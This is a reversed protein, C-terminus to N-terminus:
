PSCHSPKYLWSKNTEDWWLHLHLTHEQSFKREGCPWCYNSVWNLNHLKETRKVSPTSHLTFSCCDISGYSSSLQSMVPILSTENGSLKFYLMVLSTHDSDCDDKVVTQRATYMRWKQYKCYIFFLNTENRHGFWILKEIVCGSFSSM